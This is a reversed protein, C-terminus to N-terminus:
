PAHAQTYGVVLPSATSGVGYDKAGQYLAEALENSTALGLYDNSSFNVYPLADVEFYNSQNPDLVLKIRQRLLGQEKLALNRDVIRTALTETAQIQNSSESM